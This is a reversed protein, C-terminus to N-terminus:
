NKKKIAYTNKCNLKLSIHIVGRSFKNNNTVNIKIIDRLSKEESTSVRFVTMQYNLYNNDYFM